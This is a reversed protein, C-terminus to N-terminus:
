AAACQITVPFRRFKGRTPPSPESQVREFAPLYYVIQELLQSTSGLKRQVYSGMEGPERSFGNLVKLAKGQTEQMLVRFFVIPHKDAPDDGEGLVFEDFMQKINNMGRASRSRWLDIDVSNTTNDRSIRLRLFNTIHPSLFDKEGAAHEPDLFFIEYGDDDVRIAFAHAHRRKLNGCSAVTNLTYIGNETFRNELATRLQPIPVQAFLLQKIIESEHSSHNRVNTSRNLLGDVPEDPLLDLVAETLDDIVLGIKERAGRDGNLARFVVRAYKPLLTGLLYKPYSFETKTPTSLKGAEM